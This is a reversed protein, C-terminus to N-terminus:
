ANDKNLMQLYRKQFYYVGAEHRPSLPGPSYANSRYNDHVQRCIDFDQRIVKINAAITEDCDTSNSAAVDDFYFHYILETRDVGTPNIRSTNMGGDFLSLTWNPWMWYWRGKYFLNQRAAATMKVMGSHATTAFSDFDIARYFDPHIGPIHYGEVFNDTYIKWNGYFDLTQTQTRTYSEMPVDDLEAIVDALQETLSQHPSVCVFILGRWVEVEISQLPWDALDFDVTEGFHPAAILQGLDNYRWQHYPCRMGNCHGEGHTLLLAGRHSCVNRFARLVNDSGRIVFVKIGALDESVYDGAGAVASAPGILQWTNTFVSHREADHWSPEVYYKAPM